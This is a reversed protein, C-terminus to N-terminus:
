VSLNEVFETLTGSFLTMIVGNGKREGLLIYLLCEM